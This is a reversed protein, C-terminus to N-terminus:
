YACHFKGTFLVLGSPCHKQYYRDTAREDQKLSPDASPITVPMSLLAVPFSESKPEGNWDTWSCNVHDGQVGTVIMLPGGSRARVLDGNHFSNASAAAKSPAPDSFAPIVLHVNLAMGLMVAIGISAPRTCALM